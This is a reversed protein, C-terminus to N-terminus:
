VLNYQAPKYAWSASLRYMQAAFAYNEKNAANAAKYFFMEGPRASDEPATFRQNPSNLTPSYTIASDAANASSVPPAAVAVFATLLWNMRM